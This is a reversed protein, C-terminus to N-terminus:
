ASKLGGLDPGDKSPTDPGDKPPTDSDKLKHAGGGPKNRAANWVAWVVATGAASGGFGILLYPLIAGLDVQTLDPDLVMIVIIVAALLARGLMREASKLKVKLKKIEVEQKKIELEPQLIYQHYSRLRSEHLAAIAELDKNSAAADAVRPERSPQHAVQSGAGSPHADDSTERTTSSADDHEVEDDAV